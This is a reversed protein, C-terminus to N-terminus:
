DIAQRYFRNLWSKEGPWFSFNRRVRIGDPILRSFLVNACLHMHHHGDVHAPPKGYLRLFEDWQARFSYTFANVLFPNYLVQGYKNGKLFRVVRAHHRQLKDPCEPATFRESFNLHLGINLASEGALEAARKSDAMYVMASATTIRRAQFCNLAADTEPASRGWDDANIILM